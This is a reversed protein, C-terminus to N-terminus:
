GFPSSPMADRLTAILQDRLPSVDASRWAMLLDLRQLAEGADVALPRFIVDQRPERALSAPLLAVGFGSAVLAAVTELRRAEQVVRPTFGAALCLSVLQDHFGPGLSRASAVFPDDKLAALDVRDREALRHSAPLAVLVPESLLTEFRLSPASAGPQRMFGIDANGQELAEVQERTTAERLTFSVAPYAEHFWRLGRLLAEYPAINVFTITLHGEVGQAVRRAQAVGGELAALMGRATELFAAGAPTLSVSRNNRVLLPAGVQAELRRIAQSLPPQAMHLRQAARNFHLEEAVAIFQQLLRMEIM